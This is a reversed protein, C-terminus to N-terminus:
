IQVVGVAVNVTVMVEFSAFNLSAMRGKLQM